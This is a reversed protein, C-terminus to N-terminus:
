QIRLIYMSIDFLLIVYCCVTTLMRLHMMLLHGIYFMINLFIMSLDVVLM